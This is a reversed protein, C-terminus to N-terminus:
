TIRSAEGLCKDSNDAIDSFFFNSFLLWLAQSKLGSM